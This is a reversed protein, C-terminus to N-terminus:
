KTMKKIRRQFYFKTLLYSEAIGLVLNLGLRQWNLDRGISAIVILLMEIIIVRNLLRQFDKVRVEHDIPYIHTFVNNQYQEYFPMLQTAVLYIFLLAIVTNLWNVPIFFVVLMGVITLRTVLGSVETNRVFGHAYLYAWAHNDNELLKILGTAWKRRKVSGQVSPVDTFLNFFRYISFMRDQEARVALRWDIAVNRYYTTMAVLLIASVLLGWIPGVFWTVLWVILPNIWYEAITRSRQAGWRISIAKRATWLWTVKTILATILILSIDFTTLRETTLAFPLAIVSLTLVMLVGLIMSYITAQKLYRSISRVQPLLFIPDPRKLLTALRGVQTILVFWLVLLWRSWWLHDNLQPLWQSYGYALAGFLFFLAIVFHDNFVLRWYKLLEMFHRQRRQSFLNNM